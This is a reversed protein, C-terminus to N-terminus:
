RTVALRPGAEDLTVEIKDGVKLDALAADAGNLSVKAGSLKVDMSEDGVKVSLTGRDLSIAEITGSKVKDKGTIKDKVKSVAGKVKDKVKGLADKNKDSVNVAYHKKGGADVTSSISWWDALLGIGFVVAAIVILYGLKKM